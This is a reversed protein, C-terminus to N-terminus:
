IEQSKDITHEKVTDNNKIYEISESLGNMFKEFDEKYLFLKHKEFQAPADSENPTTIRKSETITLYLEENRNKKVDLYYVRKGARLAKSFIIDLEKDRKESYGKSKTDEM